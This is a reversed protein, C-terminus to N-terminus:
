HFMPMSIDPIVACPCVCNLLIWVAADVSAFVLCWKTASAILSSSRDYKTDIGQVIDITQTLFVSHEPHSHHQCILIANVVFRLASLIRHISAVM